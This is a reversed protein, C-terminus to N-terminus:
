HVSIADQLIEGDADCMRLPAFECDGSGAEAGCVVRPEVVGSQVNLPLFLLPLMLVAARSITQKLSSIISTM